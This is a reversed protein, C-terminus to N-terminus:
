LLNGQVKTLEGNIYLKGNKISNKGNERTFEISKFEGDESMLAFLTKKKNGISLKILSLNPTRLMKSISNTKVLKAMKCLKM